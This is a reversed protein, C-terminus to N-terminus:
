NKVQKLGTLSYKGHKPRELEWVNEDEFYMCQWEEEIIHVNELAFTIGNKYRELYTVKSLSPLFVKCDNVSLSTRFEHGERLCNFYLNCHVSAMQKAKWPSSQVSDSAFWDSGAYIIQTDDAYM